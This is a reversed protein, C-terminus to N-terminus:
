LVQETEALPVIDFKLYPQLLERAMSRANDSSLQKLFQEFQGQNLFTAAIRRHKTELSMRRPNTSTTFIRNNSRVQNPRRAPKIRPQSM